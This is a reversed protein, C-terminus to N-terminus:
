HQTRLWSKREGREGEDLPEKTGRWYTGYQATLNPTFYM